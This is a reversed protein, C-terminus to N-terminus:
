RTQLLNLVLFYKVPFTKSIASFISSCIMDSNGELSWTCGTSLQIVQTHIGNYSVVSSMNLSAPTFSANNFNSSNFVLFCPKAFGGQYTQLLDTVIIVIRGYCIITKGIKIPNHFSYEHDSM